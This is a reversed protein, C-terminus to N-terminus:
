KIPEGEPVDRKIKRIIKNGDPLQVLITARYVELLKAEVIIRKKFDKPDNLYIKM